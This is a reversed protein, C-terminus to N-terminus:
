RQNTMKKTNADKTTKARHKKPQSQEVDATLTEVVQKSALEHLAKTTDNTRKPRKTTAVIAEKATNNNGVIDLEDILPLSSVSEPIDVATKKGKGRKTFLIMAEEEDGNTQELLKVFDNAKGKTQFPYELKPSYYWNNGRKKNNVIRSILRMTWGPPFGVAVKSPIHKDSEANFSTISGALSRENAKKCEDQDEQRKKTLIRKKSSGVKIIKTTGGDEEATSVNSNACITKSTTGAAVQTVIVDECSPVDGRRADITAISSETGRLEAQKRKLYELSSEAKGSTTGKTQSKQSSPDDGNKTKTVNCNENIVAITASKCNDTPSEEGREQQRRRKRGASAGASFPTDLTFISSAEKSSLSPTGAKAEIIGGREEASSVSVNVHHMAEEDTKNVAPDNNTRRMRKLANKSPSSVKSALQKNHLSEGVNDAKCNKSTDNDHLRQQNNERSADNDDSSSSTEKDEDSSSTEEDDKSSLEGGDNCGKEIKEHADDVQGFNIDSDHQAPDEDTDKNTSEM